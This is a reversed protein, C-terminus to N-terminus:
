ISSEEECGCIYLRLSSNFDQDRFLGVQSLRAGFRGTLDPRVEFGTHPIDERRGLAVVSGTGGRQRFPCGFNAGPVFLSSVLFPLYYALKERAHLTVTDVM